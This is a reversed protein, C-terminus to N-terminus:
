LSNFFQGMEDTKVRKESGGRASIDIELAWLKAGGLFRIPNKSRKAGPIQGLTKLTFPQGRFFEDLTPHRSAVILLTRDDAGDPKHLRIGNRNLAEEWRGDLATQSSELVGFLLEDITRMVGGDLRLSCQFLHSLAAEHDAETAGRELAGGLWTWSKLKEAALEPTIVRSTQLSMWGALPQALTDGLRRSGTLKAIASAFTEANANITKTLALSRLFLRSGFNEALLNATDDRLREFAHTRAFKGEPTEFPGPHTLNLTVIRSEDAAHTGSKEISAFIFSSRVRFSRANGGVTGKVIAAGNASSAQRALALVKSVRRRDDETGKGEIEDFVVPLIDTHLAQRVGAETTEGQVVVSLGDLIRGVVSEMVWSKGSGREGNIWVHSRWKLAGCIPAVAIAGALLKGMDPAAWPLRTLLDCLARGEDDSLASAKGLDIQSRRTYLWSSKPLALDNEIGDVLLRDGLHAVVRNKDILVGRGVQRSPDFVGRRECERMLSSAAAAWDVGGKNRGPFEFEWYHLPALGVLATTTHGSASLTAIQGRAPVWYFFTGDDHGLAVPAGGNLSQDPSADVEVKPQKEANDPKPNITEEITDMVADLGFQQGLDDFDTRTIDGDEFQPISVRGSVADAAERAKTVGPNEIPTMTMRDNDAAFVIRAKPYKKRIAKGVPMLNGADFASIVLYGTAEHIRAATAYGEAIIIVGNPDDSPKGISHYNGEKRMGKLFLKRGDPGIFQVGAIDGTPSFIPVALNGARAQKAEEEDFVTYKTNQKVIRLGPFVPLGKKALYPHDAPAKGTAKLVATAQDAAHAHMKATAEAKAAAAKKMKDKLDRKEEATMTTPKKACWTDEIGAQLDGFAGAPINDMHLIYFVHSNRKQKKGLADARHMRGDAIPHPGGKSTTDIDVGASRM